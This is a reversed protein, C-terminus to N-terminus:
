DGRRLKDIKEKNVDEIAKHMESEINEIKLDKRCCLDNSKKIFSKCRQMAVDSMDKLACQLTSSTIQDYCIMKTESTLECESKLQSSDDFMKMDYFKFVFEPNKVKGNLTLSKEKVCESESQENKIFEGSFKVLMGESFKNSIKSFLPTTPELLTNSGIDSISNNWTGLQIDLKKGEPVLVYKIRINIIGKGDSNAGIEQIVGEWGTIKYGNQKKFFDCLLKDRQNKIGGIQMDNTAKLSEEQATAVILSFQRQDVPLPISSKKINSYDIEKPKATLIIYISGIIILIVILVIIKVIKQMEQPLSKYKQALIKGTQYSEKSYNPDSM